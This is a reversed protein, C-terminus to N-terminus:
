DSRKAVAADSMSKQGPNSANIMDVYVSYVGDALSAPDLAQAEAKGANDSVGSSEAAFATVSASCVPSLVMSAALLRTLLRKAKKM